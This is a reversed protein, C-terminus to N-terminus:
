KTKENLIITLKDVVANREVKNSRYKELTAIAETLFADISAGDNTDLRSSISFTIGVDSAEGVYNTTITGIGKADTDQKFDITWAM